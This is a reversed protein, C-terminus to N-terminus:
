EQFLLLCLRSLLDRNCKKCMKFIKGSEKEFKKQSQLIIGVNRKKGALEEM